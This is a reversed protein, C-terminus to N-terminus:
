AIDLHDIKKENLQKIIKFQSIVVTKNTSFQKNNKKCWKQFTKKYQEVVNKVSYEKLTDSEKIFDSIKEFPELTIGTIELAAVPIGKWNNLLAYDGIEPILQHYLNYQDKLEVIIKQQSNLIARNFEEIDKKGYGNKVIHFHNKRETFENLLIDYYAEIISKGSLSSFSESEGICNIPIWQINRYKTLDFLVESSEKGPCLFLYLQQENRFIDLIIKKGILSSKLPIFAQKALLEVNLRNSPKNIPDEVEPLFWSNDALRNKTKVWLAKHERDLILLFAM